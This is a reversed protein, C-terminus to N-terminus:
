KRGRGRLYIRVGTILAFASLFLNGLIIMRGAPTSPDPPTM